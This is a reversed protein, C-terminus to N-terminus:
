MDWMGWMSKREEREAFYHLEIIGIEECKSHGCDLKGGTSRGTSYTSDVTGRAM